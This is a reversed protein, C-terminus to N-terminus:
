FVARLLLVILVIAILVPLGIIWGIAAVLEM